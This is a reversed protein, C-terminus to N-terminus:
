EQSANGNLACILDSRHGIYVNHKDNVNNLGLLLKGPFEKYFNEIEIYINM